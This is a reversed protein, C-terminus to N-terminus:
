ARATKLAEDDGEQAEPTARHEALNQLILPEAKTWECSNDILNEEVGEEMESDAYEQREQATTPGGLDAEPAGAAHTDTTSSGGGERSSDSSTPFDQMDQLTLNSFRPTAHPSYYHHPSVPNGRSAGGQGAHLRGPSTQSSSLTGM